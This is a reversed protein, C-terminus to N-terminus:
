HTPFTLKEFFKGFTIFSDDRPVCYKAAVDKNSM